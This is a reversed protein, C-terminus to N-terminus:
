VVRKEIKGRVVLVSCGSYHILKRSVSGLLWGSVSSLGRSGSVILDVQNRHAYAIIETAADGRLMETKVQFGRDIFIQKGQNLIANGCQEEEAKWEKMEAPSPFPPLPPIPEIGGVMSTASLEAPPLPPLIHLLHVIIEKSLPFNALFQGTGQSCQSEDIAWLINHLGTYPSRVVLVPWHGYEVVQQAVGGLLIGLTARLGKAGIVILSANKQEAYDQLTEAPFGAKLETDVIWGRSTLTAQTNQLADQLIGHMELQRPSFVAVMTVHNHKPVPLESLFQVAAQAHDSGDNGLVIQFATPNEQNEMPNM